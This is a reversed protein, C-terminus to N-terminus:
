RRDHSSTGAVLTAPPRPLVYHHHAPRLHTGLSRRVACVFGAVVASVIGAMAGYAFYEDGLSVFAFMGFAMSLPIAVASSVLGATIESKVSAAKSTAHRPM